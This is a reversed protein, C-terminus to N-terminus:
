GKASATPNKRSQERRWMDELTGIGVVIMARFKEMQDLELNVIDGRIRFDLEDNKYYGVSFMAGLENHDSM